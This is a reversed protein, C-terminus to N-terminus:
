VSEAQDREEQAAWSEKSTSPALAVTFQCNVQMVINHSIM